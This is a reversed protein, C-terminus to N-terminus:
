RTPGGPTADDPLRPYPPLEPYSQDLSSALSELQRQALKVSETELYIQDLLRNVTAHREEPLHDLINRKKHVQCRQIVALRGYANIIAKHIGKGDDVVFLTAKDSALGRDMLERLLSRCVTANETTGERLGLFHKTGDAEIGLAILLIRDKFHIGDTM